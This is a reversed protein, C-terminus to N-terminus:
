AVSSGILIAASRILAVSFFFVTVNEPFTIVKLAFAFDNERSIGLDPLVLIHDGAVFNDVIKIFAARFYDGAVVGSAAFSPFFLATANLHCNQLVLGSKEHAFNKAPWPVLRKTTTFSM